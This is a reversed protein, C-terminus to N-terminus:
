SSSARRHRKTPLGLGNEEELKRKKSAKKKEKRRKKEEKRLLKANTGQELRASAEHENDAESRNSAPAPPKEVDSETASKMQKPHRPREEEEQHVIGGRCFRSYLERKAAERKALTLLDTDSHRTISFIPRSEEGYEIPRRHSLIGTQTLSLKNSGSQTPDTLTPLVQSRSAEDEDESDEVHIKIADAAAAYVHDWFQFGDDRNKGLGKLDKKQAQVIPRSLGGEQLATGKGKWGRSVLYSHSDITM